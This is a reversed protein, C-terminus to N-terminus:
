NGLTRHPLIHHHNNKRGREGNAEERTHCICKRQQKNAGKHIKFLFNNVGPRQMGLPFSSMVSQPNFSLVCNNYPLPFMARMELHATVRESVLQLWKTIATSTDRRKKASSPRGRHATEDSPSRLRSEDSRISQKCSAPTRPALAGLHRSWLIWSLKNELAMNSPCPEGLRPSRLRQRKQRPPPKYTMIQSQFIRTFFPTITWENMWLYGKLIRPVCYHNICILNNESPAQPIPCLCVSPTETLKLSSSIYFFIFCLLGISLSGPLSSPCLGYLNELTKLHTGTGEIEKGDIKIHFKSQNYYMYFKKIHPQILHCLYVWLYCQPVEQCLLHESFSKQIHTQIKSSWIGTSETSNQILELLAPIASRSLVSCSMKCGRQAATVRHGETPLPPREWASSVPDLLLHSTFPAQPRCKLRNTLRTHTQTHSMGEEEQLRTFSLLVQFAQTEWNVLFRRKNLEGVVVRFSRQFPQSSTQTGKQSLLDTIRSSRPSISSQSSFKHTELPGSSERRQTEQHHKIRNMEWKWSTNALCDKFYARKPRHKFKLLILMQTDDTAATCWEPCHLIFLWLIHAAQNFHVILALESLHIRLAPRNTHPSSEM